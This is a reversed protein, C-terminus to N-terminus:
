EASMTLRRARWGLQEFLSKMARDGPLAWADRPPEDVDFVAQLLATAIGRRRASHTVYLGVVCPRGVTLVAIVGCLGADDSAVLVDGREVLAGALTAADFTSTLRELDDLYAAGGRSHRIEEFAITVIEILEDDVRDVRAVRISV